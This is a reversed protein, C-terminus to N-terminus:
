VKIWTVSIPLYHLNSILWMEPWANVRSHGFVQRPWSKIKVTSLAVSLLQNGKLHDTGQYYSNNVVRRGSFCNPTTDTSIILNGQESSNLYLM